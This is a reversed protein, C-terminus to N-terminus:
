GRFKSIINRYFCYDMAAAAAGFLAASEVGSFLAQSLMDWDFYELPPGCSLPAFSCYNPVQIKSLIRTLAFAGIVGQNLMPNEDERICYRYVIAFLGAEISGMDTDFEWQAVGNAVHGGNDLLINHLASFPTLAVGGAVAGVVVAKTSEIRQAFSFGEDDDSSSSALRTNTVTRTSSRIVAFGSATCHLTWLVLFFLFGSNQHQASRTETRKNRKTM